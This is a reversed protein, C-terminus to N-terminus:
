RQITIPGNPGTVTIRSGLPILVGTPPATKIVANSGENIALSTAFTNMILNAYRILHRYPELPVYVIDGAQLQVDPMHGKIVARYDIVAIKPESLSGRVVAVHSLYSEKHTGGAAAVAAVLSMGEQFPVSRPSIVAGLVYVERATSAPLYVFDDPQLYINQSIDGHKLLREFDVPVVNGKRVLFARRLDALEEGPTIQTIDFNGTYAYTGGAVAFAELLTLPTSLPYVGPAQFRGLLWVHKSDVGRVTIGVHPRDRLYKGFERELLDKVQTVNLGWVDFGPLFSYYIKGDPGVAVISRSTPDDLLEIELKDGPGLTFPETPMKLLTPDIRNTFPISEFGAPLANTEGSIAANARADFKPGYQQCGTVLMAILLFTSTFAIFKM